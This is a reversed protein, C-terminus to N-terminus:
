LGTADVDLSPPWILQLRTAIRNVGFSWMSLSVSWHKYDPLMLFLHPHGSEGCGLPSGILALVGCQFPCQGTNIIRYCGCTLTALNM